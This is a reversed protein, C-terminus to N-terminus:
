LLNLERARAVAAARSHVGLKRYVACVHTKITNVSLYLERGIERQSLPGSLARLVRLEIATVEDAEAPRPPEAPGLAAREDAIRRVLREDGRALVLGRELTRQAVEPGDTRAQTRALALLGLPTPLTATSTRAASLAAAHRAADGAALSRVAFCAAVAAPAAASREIGVRAAAAFAAGANGALWAEVALAADVDAEPDRAEARTPTPAPPALLEALLPHLRTGGRALPVGAARLRELADQDPEAAAATRQALARLYPPLPQLVEERLYDAIHRFGEAEGGRGLAQAVLYVAAPWGETREHLARTRELPQPGALSRVLREVERADLVLEDAPLELVRAAAALRAVPLRPLTRSSVVLRAQPPLLDVLRALVPEAATGALRQADDVVLVPGRPPGLADAVRVLADDPPLGAAAVRAAAALAHVFARADAHAPGLPVWALHAERLRWQALLTTKGYGTPATVLTVPRTGLRAVLAPRPVVDPALRPRSPPRLSEPTADQVAAIM